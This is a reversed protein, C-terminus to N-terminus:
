IDHLKGDVFDRTFEKVDSPQHVYLATLLREFFPNLTKSIYSNLSKKAENDIEVEVSVIGRM